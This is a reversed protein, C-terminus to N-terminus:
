AQRGIQHDLEVIHAAAAVPDVAVTVSQGVILTDWDASTLQATHLRRRSTSRLQAPNIQNLVDLSITAAEDPGTAAGTLHAAVWGPGFPIEGRRLARRTRPRTRRASVM